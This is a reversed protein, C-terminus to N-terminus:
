LEEWKAEVKWVGNDVEVEFRRKGSGFKKDM